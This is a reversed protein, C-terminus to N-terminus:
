VGATAADDPNFGDPLANDELDRFFPDRREDDVMSMIRDIEPGSHGELELLYRLPYGMGHRKQLADVIQSESQMAPDRWRVTASRMQEALETRGRVLSMLRFVERMAGSFYLQQAEVKKVLGTEAATLADGSLNALGKNAVLYHPPTRTQAAIHGVANEIVSTFVDLKAADWQDVKADKGTLWLFRGQELDRMEAPRSGVIQGNGDLVPIKPPEAGMVVRAPHSAHDASSFLYSWLLNIADQMAKTGAIDSIPEGGLMPRNPFEVIPVAGLPNPLPWVEDRVERPEWATASTVGSRYQQVVYLRGGAQTTQPARRRFKWVAEATYLTANEWNDELWVKLAAVRRNPREPDYGVVVQSPSEWTLLPSDDEPDGWVFAFSRRAIVSQLLGQSSQAEGENRLWDRWLEKEEASDGGETAYVGELRQREAPADAVPACWNDSFGAYRNAHFERWKESAYRLPHKGRYYDNMSRVEDLRDTLTNYLSNVLSLAGATDM